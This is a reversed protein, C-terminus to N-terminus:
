KYFSLWLTENLKWKIYFLIHYKTITALYEDGFYYVNCKHDKYSPFVHCWLEGDIKWVKKKQM